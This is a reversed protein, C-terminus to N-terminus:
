MQALRKKAAEVREQALSDMRESNELIDAIGKPVLVKEGRKILFSRGNRGVFVEQSYKGEGKFLKIEVMEEEFPNSMENAKKTTNKM